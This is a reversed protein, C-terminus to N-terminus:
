RPSPRPSSPATLGFYENRERTERPVFCPQSTKSRTPLRRRRAALGRKVAEFGDFRQGVESPGRPMQLWCDECFYSMIRDVDHANFGDCLGRLTAMKEDYTAM